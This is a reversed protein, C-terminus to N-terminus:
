LSESIKKESVLDSQINKTKIKFKKELEIMLNFHSISDWNEITDVTIIGSYNKKLGFFAILFQRLERKKKDKEKLNKM